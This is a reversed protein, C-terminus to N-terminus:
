LEKSHVQPKEKVLALYSVICNWTQPLPPRVPNQAFHMSLHAFSVKAIKYM